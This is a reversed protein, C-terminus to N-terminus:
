GGSSALAFLWLPTQLLRGEQGPSTQCSLASGCAFDTRSFDKLAIQPMSLLWMDGPPSAASASNGVHIHKDM